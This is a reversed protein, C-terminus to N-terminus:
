LAELPKGLLARKQTLFKMHHDLHRAYNEVTGGLTIIGYHNHVGVRSFTDEPLAKLLQTTHARNLAFLECCLQVDMLEYYLHNAFATEDYAILLPKDEAIMRKMRHTAVLDSDLLHIVIQRISWTGPIPKADLDSPGLGAIARSLLPGGSAYREITAQDMDRLTRPGYTTPM